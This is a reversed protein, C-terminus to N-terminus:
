EDIRKKDYGFNKMLVDNDRWNKKVKVWLKLNVQMDLMKEIEYRANTGIKKLMEGGKGIIIGKHSERECIITAEIDMVKQGKRKKMIDITVAIGHPVEENLAHLAKERIMEAVIQKEPQDTITDEDYFMPGYPLYKFIVDILEDVNEGTKASVPVIEDFNYEKSYTDIFSLLEEKKVSDIKNIVLIAPVNSKSIVEIIHKEGAGVYNTPEVLFLVVDMDRLSHEAVEVMYEGLKNSAKHIGPTDSFVIQGKEMDTYVTQIKNRTTQPKNSTIAIKQGIIKNMLTSKGVNPRGIITAFGSKLEPM